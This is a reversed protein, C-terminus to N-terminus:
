QIVIGYPILMQFLRQQRLLLNNTCTVNKQTHNIRSPETTTRKLFACIAMDFNEIKRGISTLHAKERGFAHLSEGFPVIRFLSVFEETQRMTKQPNNSNEAGYYLEAVTIESLYCNNIGALAIKRNMDFKGRMCFICINTDLLYKKMTETM